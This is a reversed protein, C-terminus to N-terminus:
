FRLGKKRFQIEKVKCDILYEYFARLTCFTLGPIGDLWGLKVFYLSLFVVVPRGPFMYILNKLARRRITPDTEFFDELKPLHLKGLAIEEAEMTSYRNHKEVWSHLGKNFPYHLLHHKLFGVKGDTCYEENIKRTVHVQGIRVLRGFWTPYGSSRRIWKNMFYDKRRMRYLSIDFCNSKIVEAIQSALEETVVEDADVMLVWDYKYQIDKLGFNRQSAYDDFKRQVFRAGADRAIAGTQDSSFSDLVVIDDCWKLSDLCNPLNIEENLTLILVSVSMLDGIEIFRSLITEQLM